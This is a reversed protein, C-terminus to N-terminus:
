ANEKDLHWPTSRALNLIRVNIMAEVNKQPHVYVEEVSMFAQATTTKTANRFV